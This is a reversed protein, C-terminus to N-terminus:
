LCSGGQAGATIKGGAIVKQIRIEDDFICIDADKGLALEGKNKAGIIRAPNATMMAVADAVPVGALKVMTRICRDATCVSGAFASRDMLMAVGQEIITDQGNSLSGLKVIEGEPMGAGRMSDTILCIQEMPKQKVILRLLEPPLHCGDAIIEVSLEDMLYASEVIGLRRWPGKRRLMSMASYFHTVHTYGHRVANKVDEYEASSHGISALIGRRHLEDGLELAGPLEPAASVRLIDESADLLRLYHERTPNRLYKPDQAGAQEPNFYPGELHLGLLSPGNQMQRKAQRFCEFARLLEADSSTLTTPVISTTGHRMHAKAAGIFAEPTGDMFDYGGGGHTHLDIFGPSVFFGQADITEDARLPPEGEFIGIIKGDEFLVGGYVIRRDPAIVRGNRIATRM